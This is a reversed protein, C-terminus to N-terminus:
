FWLRSWRNQQQQQQQKVGGREQSPPIARVAIWTRAMLRISNPWPFLPLGNRVLRLHLNCVPLEVVLLASQWQHTGM